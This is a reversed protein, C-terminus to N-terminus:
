AEVIPNAICAAAMQGFLPSGDREALTQLWRARDTYAEGRGRLAEQFPERFASYGDFGVARALRMLTNPTVAARRAVQRLSALGIDSPNDLAYRAARQLQPSLGEYIDSIRVILDDLTM